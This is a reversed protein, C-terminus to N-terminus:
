ELSGDMSVSRNKDMPFLRSKENFACGHLVPDTKELCSRFDISRDVMFCSRTKRYSGPRAEKMVPCNRSGGGKEHLQLSDGSNKACVCMSKGGGSESKGNRSSKVVHM